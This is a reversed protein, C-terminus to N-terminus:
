IIEIGRLNKCVDYGEGLIEGQMHDLIFADGVFRFQGEEEKGGGGGGTPRLVFPTSAGRLVWVQDGVEACQPGMGLLGAQTLFLRQHKNMYRNLGIGYIHSADELDHPYDDAPTEARNLIELADTATDQLASIFISPDTGKAFELQSISQTLYQARSEIEHSTLGPERLHQVAGFLLFNLFHLEHSPDPRTSTENDSSSMENDRICTRWLVETRPRGAQETPLSQAVDLLIHPASSPHQDWVHEITDFHGGFCELKHGSVKFLRQPNQADGQSIQRSANSIPNFPDDGDAYIPSLSVGKRYDPVWSPLTSPGVDQQSKHTIIDLRHGQELLTSTVETYLAEPTKSYDVPIHHSIDEVFLLDLLGLVGYVRDLDNSCEQSGLLSLLQACMAFNTPGTAGPERLLRESSGADIAKALGMSTNNVTRCVQVMTILGNLVHIDAAHRAGTLGLTIENVWQMDRLIVPFLGLQEWSLESTGLFVRVKRALALEQLCWLRSFWRCTRIVLSAEMVKNRLNTIGFLEEFGDTWFGEGETQALKLHDERQIRRIAPIFEECLMILPNPEPNDDDPGLWVLVEEASSYILRMMQIQSQKEAQDDPRICFADSWLWGTIGNLMLRLAAEFSNRPIGKLGFVNEPDVMPVSADSSFGILNDDEWTHDFYPEGRTYSIARYEPLSALDFIKIEFDVVPGDPSNVEQM